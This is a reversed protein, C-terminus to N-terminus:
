FAGMNRLHNMVVPISIGGGSTDDGYLAFNVLRTLDNLGTITTPWSFGSYSYNTSYSAEGSGGDTIRLAGTTDAIGVLWYYNGSVITMDPISLTNVQGGTVAQASDNYSLRTGISGSSDNYVAIKVNGSANSYVRFDQTNDSNKTAQFRGGYVINAYVNNYGQDTTGLVLEVAM